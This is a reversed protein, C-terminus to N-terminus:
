LVILFVVCLHRKSDSIFFLMQSIVSFLYIYTNVKIHRKSERFGDALLPLTDSTSTLTNKLLGTFDEEQELTKVKSFM